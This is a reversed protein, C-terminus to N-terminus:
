SMRTVNKAGVHETENVEAFLRQESAQDREICEDRIVSGYQECVLQQALDRDEPTSAGTDDRRPRRNLARLSRRM